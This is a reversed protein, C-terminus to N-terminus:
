NAGLHPDTYSVDIPTNRELLGHIGGSHRKAELAFDPHPRRSAVHEVGDLCHDKQKVRRYRGGATEQEPYHAEEFEYPIIKLWPMFHLRSHRTYERTIETRLELDKRNMRFRFGHGVETKFTTNADVWAFNTPKKTWRRLRTAFWKIWESVTMGVEEITGDGTYRYNPFEELVYLEYNPDIACIVGGMYTGTDAGASIDWHKPLRLSDPTLM